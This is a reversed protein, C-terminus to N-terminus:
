ADSVFDVFSVALIIYNPSLQNFIVAEDEETRCNTIWYLIHFSWGRIPDNMLCIM